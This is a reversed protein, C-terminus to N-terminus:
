GTGLVSTLLYFLAPALLAESALGVAALVTGSSVIVVYAVLRGLQQAALMGIIGFAMTALGAGFLWEGGLPAPAGGNELLSGLRLVAYVGVKTMISFIAAVPASAAAYATALWFNLPWSGAKVLF